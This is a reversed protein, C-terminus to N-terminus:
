AGRGAGWWQLRVIADVVDQQDGDSMAPFLPLTVLRSCTREAVPCEGEGHGRARYMSLLHIAPYHLTAAVNEARLADIVTDRRFGFADTIEIAYLHWASDRGALRPPLIVGPVGALLDDYRSALEARRALWGDLRGLQSSGLAAQFDTLRHNEGLELVDYRWSRGARQNAESTLGHNRLRRLRRALDDDDTLAAGGEGTTIHKVPHFSLTTIDAAPAAPRGGVRAGLSHAADAIVPLGCPLRPRLTTVDSPLGSYDVTVVAATSPNVAALAADPDLCRDMGIDAFVPTAGVLLAANATAVFSLPPVVVSAGPEVGVSRLALQLAATGNNCAVAHRVGCVAALAEEFAAVAAGGTLTGLKLSRVVADVDDDDLTHRGYPLMSTRVPRGGAVAPLTSAATIM